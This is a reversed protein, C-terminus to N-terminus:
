TTFIQEEQQRKREEEKLKDQRRKEHFENQANLAKTADNEILYKLITDDNEAIELFQRGMKTTTLIERLIEMREAEMSKPSNVYSQQGAMIDRAASMVFVGCNIHDNQQPMDDFYRVEWATTCAENMFFDPLVHKKILQIDKELIGPQNEERENKFSDYVTCTLTDRDLELLVFHNDLLLSHIHKRQNQVDFLVLTDNWPLQTQRAHVWNNKERNTLYVYMSPTITVQQNNLKAKNKLYHCYFDVIETELWENSNALDLIQLLDLTIENCEALNAAVYSYGPGRTQQLSIETSTIGKTSNDLVPPTSDEANSSETILQKKTCSTASIPKETLPGLIEECYKLCDETEVMAELYKEIEDDLRDAVFFCFLM